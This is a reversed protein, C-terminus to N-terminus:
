YRAYKFNVVEQKAEQVNNHHQSTCELYPFRFFFSNPQAKHGECPSSDRGTNKSCATVYGLTQWDMLAVPETSVKSIRVKFNSCITM